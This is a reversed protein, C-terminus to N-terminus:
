PEHSRETGLRMLAPEFIVPVQVHLIQFLLLLFQHPGGGLASKM